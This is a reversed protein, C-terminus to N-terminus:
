TEVKVAIPPQECHPPVPAQDGVRLRDENYGCIRGAQVWVGSASALRTLKCALFLLVDELRLSDKNNPGRPKAETTSCERPSPSIVNWHKM